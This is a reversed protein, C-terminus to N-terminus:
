KSVALCGQDSATAARRIPQPILAQADGIAVPVHRDDVLTPILQADCALRAATTKTIRARGGGLRWLVRATITHDEREIPLRPHRLRPHGARRGADDSGEILTDLPLVVTCRPRAQRGNPGALFDAAIRVLGEARQAARKRCPGWTRPMPRGDADVPHDDATPPDAAADVADTVTAGAEIDLEFWGKMRTSDLTPQVVFTNRDLDAVDRDPKDVALCRAALDGAIEVVRDPEGGQDIVGALQDDLWARDAIRLPRAAIVIGQLQSWSVDGRQFSLWTAPMGDLVEIARTLFRVDRGTTDTELGALREVPLGSPHPGTSRAERLAALALRMGDDAQRMGAILRDAVSGDFVRSDANVQM